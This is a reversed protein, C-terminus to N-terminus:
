TPGLEVLRQTPRLAAHGTSPFIGEQSGTGRPALSFAQAQKQDAAQDEDQEKWYTQQYLLGQSRGGHRGQLITSWARQTLCNSCCSRAAGDVKGSSELPM